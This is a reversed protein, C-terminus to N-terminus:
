LYTEAHQMALEEAYMRTVHSTRRWMTPDPGIRRRLQWGDAFDVRAVELDGAGTEIIYLRQNGHAELRLTPTKTTETM